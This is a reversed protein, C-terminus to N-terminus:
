EALWCLKQLITIARCEHERKVHQLKQCSDINSLHLHDINGTDFGITHSVLCHM